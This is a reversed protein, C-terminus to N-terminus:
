NNLLKLFLKNLRFNLEDIDFKKINKLANKKMDARLKPNLILMKIKEAYVSPNNSKILFGSNENIVIDSISGIEPAIVPLGAAQAEMLAVPLVEAESTSIFIDAEALQTYVDDQPLAGLCKVINSLQLRTIKLDIDPRMPGEGILRYEIDFHEPMETIKKIVDLAFIINKEKVLRAVTIIIIKKEHGYSQIINKQDIGVPHHIIKEIPCGLKILADTNSFAISLFLSGHEFLKSYDTHNAIAQRIDYGHFMTVIKGKIGLENLTVALNGNHGFHCFFIDVPTKIFYSSKILLNLSLAEKGYKLFNLSNLIIKPSIFINKIFIFIGLIIKLIFFHPRDNHYYTKNLLNYTRVDPHVIIDNSHAASFITIEHGQKILGTIQNLIFTESISPFVDILFAIRM